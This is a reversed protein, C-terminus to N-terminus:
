WVEPDHRAADFEDAWVLTLTDSPSVDFNDVETLTPNDINVNVAAPPPPPPPPPPSAVPPASGGGGGCASLSFAAVLPCALRALGSRNATM